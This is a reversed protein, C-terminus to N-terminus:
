VLRCARRMLLRVPLVILPLILMTLQSSVWTDTICVATTTQAVSSEDDFFPKRRVLNLRSVAQADIRRSYCLGLVVVAALGQSFHM